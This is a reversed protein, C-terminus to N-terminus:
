DDFRAQQPREDLCEEPTLARFTHLYRPPLGIYNQTGQWFRARQETSLDGVIKGPVGRVLSGAPVQLRPPVLCGAAIVANAGVIVEDSVIAGMGVLVHEDLRSGHFIAGHGLHTARGLEVVAGPLGHIICNDQVNSDDGLRIEVWDGRLVAGPGIFCNSGIAVAGILTATPHVFSTPHVHPRRGEFEYLPM